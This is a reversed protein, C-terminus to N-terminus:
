YQKKVADIFNIIDKQFWNSGGVIRYLVRGDPGVIFSTPLSKFDLAKQLDMNHDHYLAVNGIKHKASFRSLSQITDGLDISVAIVEMDKTKYYGKLIQLTPLEQICPPCWTAWLNLLLFRGRYEKINLLNDDPGTIFIDSLQKPNDLKEISYFYPEAKSQLRALSIDAKIWVVGSYFAFVIVIGLVAGWRKIKGAGLESAM